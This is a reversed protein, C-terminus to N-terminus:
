GGSRLASAIVIRTDLIPTWEAAVSVAVVVFVGIAAGILGGLPGDAIQVRRQARTSVAADHTIVVLTLGDRHLEDFLDLM